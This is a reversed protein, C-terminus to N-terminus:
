VLKEFIQDEIEAVHEAAAASAVIADGEFIAIAIEKHKKAVQEVIKKVEESELGGYLLSSFASSDFVAKLVRGYLEELLPNSCCEGIKMHFRHNLGRFEEPDMESYFSDALELIEKRQQETARCAALETVSIEIFRRPEVLDKLTKTKEDPIDIVGIAEAVYLRNTQRELVGLSVLQQISERITTRAVGFDECLQRESPMRQGPIFKGERILQLLQGSVQDAITKREIPKLSYSGGPFSM